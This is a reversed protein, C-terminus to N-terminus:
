GTVKLTLHHLRRTTNHLVMRGKLLAMVAKSAKMLHDVLVKTPDSSLKMHALLHNMLLSDKALVNLHHATRVRRHVMTFIRHHYIAMVRVRKEVKVMVWVQYQCSRNMGKQVKLIPMLYRKMVSAMIVRLHPQVMAQQVTFLPIRTILLQDTHFVWMAVLKISSQVWILTFHQRIFGLHTM